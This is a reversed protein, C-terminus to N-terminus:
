SILSALDDAINKIDQSAKSGQQNVWSFFAGANAYSGLAAGSTDELIVEGDAALDAIYSANGFQLSIGSSSDLMVTFGTIESTESVVGSVAVFPNDWEMFNTMKYKGEFLPQSKLIDITVSGTIANNTVTMSFTGVSAWGPIPINLSGTGTFSFQGTYYVNGTFSLVQNLGPVNVNLGAHIHTSDFTATWALLNGAEHGTVTISQVHPGFAGDVTANDGLLPQFLDSNQVYPVYNFFSPQDGHFYVTQTPGNYIVTGKVAPL